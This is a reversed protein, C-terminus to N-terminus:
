RAACKVPTNAIDILKPYDAGGAVETVKAMEAHVVYDEFLSWASEKRM